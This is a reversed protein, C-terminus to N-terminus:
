EGGQEITAEIVAFRTPVLNVFTMRKSFCPSCKMDDIGRKNGILHSPVNSVQRCKPCIVKIKPSKSNTFM